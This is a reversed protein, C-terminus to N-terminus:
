PKGPSESSYFVNSLFSIKKIKFSLDLWTYQLICFFIPDCPENVEWIWDDLHTKVNLAQKEIPFLLFIGLSGKICPM